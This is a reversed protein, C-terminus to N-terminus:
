KDGGLFKMVAAQVRGIAAEDSDAWFARKAARRALDGRGQLAPLAASGNWKVDIREITTGHPRLGM